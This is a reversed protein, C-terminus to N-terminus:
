ATYKALFGDPFGTATPSTGGFDITGSFTGCMAVNGASDFAVSVATSPSGGRIAWQFAGASSYVAIVFGGASTVNIGNNNWDILGGAGGCFAIKGANNSAIALAADNTEAKGHAINWIWTGDNLYSVVFLGGVQGYESHINGGGLDINTTTFSGCIFVHGTSLDVCVGHIMNSNAFVKSGFGAIYSGDTTSLKVVFGGANATDGGGFNTAAGIFGTVYLHGANDVECKKPQDSFSSGFGKAWLTSGDAHDLKVVGFHSAPFPLTFGNQCNTESNYKIVVYLDRSSDVSLGTVQRNGSGSFATVWNLTGTSTYSAVFVSIGDTATKSTGGFDMTGFFYGGVIRNGASDIALMQCSDDSGSQDGLSIAPQVLVNSSSYKALFADANTGVKTFVQGGFDIRTGGWSGCVNFNNSSDAKVSNCQVGVSAIDRVWVLGAAHTVSVVNYPIPVGNVTRGTLRYWFTPNPVTTDIFQRTCPAINSNIMQFGATASTSSRELEFHDVTDPVFNGSCDFPM